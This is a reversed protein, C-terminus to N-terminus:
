DDRLTIERVRALLVDLAPRNLGGEPIIVDAHRKSPEIFREHAPRVTSLYQEIVFEPTRGREAVDRRLRRILRIDAATDVFIKLDFRERLTRDWLVLIGDVVIIRAPSVIRVRDSRNHQAYDYIPVPVSAGNALAALHDNLLAWDFADPHDYNVSERQAIPADGLDLYYSDLEILSLHENGTLAALRETVTTKGSSSGGAIGIIFPRRVNPVNPSAFASGHRSKVTGHCRATTGTVTKILEQGSNTTLGNSQTTMGNVTLRAANVVVDVFAAGHVSLREEGFRLLEISV